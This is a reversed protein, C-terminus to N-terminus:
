TFDVLTTGTHKISVGSVVTVDGPDSIGSVITVGGTPTPPIIAPPFSWAFNYITSGLWGLNTDYYATVSFSATPASGTFTNIPMYPTTAQTTGQNFQVFGADGGEYTIGVVLNDAASNVSIAYTHDADDSVGGTLGHASTIATGSGSVLGWRVAIGASPSSLNVVVTKNSGTSLNSGHAGCATINAEYNFAWDYEQQYDITLASGDYTISSFVPHYTGYDGDAEGFICIANGSPNNISFSLQYTDYILGGSDAVGTSVFAVAM